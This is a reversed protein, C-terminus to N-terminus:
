LQGRHADCRAIAVKNGAVDEARVETYRAQAGCVVFLPTKGHRPTRSRYTCKPWTLHLEHTPFLDHLLDLTKTPSFVSAETDWGEDARPSYKAWEAGTLHPHIRISWGCDVWKGLWSFETVPRPDEDVPGARRVPAPNPHKMEKMGYPLSTPMKGYRSDM